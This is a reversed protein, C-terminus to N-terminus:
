GLNGEVNATKNISMITVILVAGIKQQEAQIMGLFVMTLKPWAQTLLTGSVRVIQGRFWHIPNMYRARIIM